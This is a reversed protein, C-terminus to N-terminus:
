HLHSTCEDMVSNTVFKESTESSGGPLGCTLSLSAASVGLEYLEAMPRLRAESAHELLRISEDSFLFAGHHRCVEVIEM